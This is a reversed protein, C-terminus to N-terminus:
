SNHWNPGGQTYRNKRRNSKTKRTGRVAVSEQNDYGAGMNQSWTGGVITDKNDNVNNAIKDSDDDSKPVWTNTTDDWHGQQNPNNPDIATKSTNWTTSPKYGDAPNNTETTILTTNVNGYDSKKIKYQGPNHSYVNERHGSDLAKGSESRQRIAKITTKDDGEGITRDSTTSQWDDAAGGLGLFGKKKKGGKNYGGTISLADIIDQNGAAVEEDINVGKKILKNIYNTQKRVNKADGKRYKNLKKNQQRVQWPEAVDMYGGTIETSISQGKVESTSGSTPIDSITSKGKTNVEEYDFKKVWKKFEPGDPDWDPNFGGAINTPNNFSNFYDKGTLLKTIKKKKITKGDAGQTVIRQNGTGADDVKFHKHKINEGNVDGTQFDEHEGHHAPSKWAKSIKAKHAM